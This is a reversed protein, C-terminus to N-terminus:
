FRCITARPELRSLERAGLALALPALSSHKSVHTNKTMCRDLCGKLATSLKLFSMDTELSLAHATLARKSWAGAGSGAAALSLHKQFILTKRSADTLVDRGNDSGDVIELFSRDTELSELSSCHSSEQELPSRWRRPALSSRQKLFSNEDDTM